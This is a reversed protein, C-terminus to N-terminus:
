KPQYIQDFFGGEAFHTRQAQQWSGFVENVTFQKQILATENEFTLERTVDHSVNLLKVTAARSSAAGAALWGIFLAAVILQPIRQQRPFPRFIAAMDAWPSAVRTPCDGQCELKRGTKGPGRGQGGYITPKM